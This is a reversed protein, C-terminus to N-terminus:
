RPRRRLWLRLRRALLILVHQVVHAGVTTRAAGGQGACILKAVVRHAIRGQTNSWKKWNKSIMSKDDELHFYSETGGGRKWGPPLTSLPESSADVAPPAGHVVHDCYEQLYQVRMGLDKFKVAAGADGCGNEWAYGVRCARWSSQPSVM